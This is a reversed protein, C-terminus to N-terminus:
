FRVTASLYMGRIRVVARDGVPEIYSYRVYTNRYGYSLGFTPTASYTASADFDTWVGESDRKMGVGEITLGLAPTLYVRGKLGFLPMDLQLPEPSSSGEASEFSTTTRFRGYEGVIALIAYEGNVINFEAGGRTQEIEMISQLEEGPPTCLGAICIESTPSTTGDYKVQFYNGRIKLRSMLRVAFHYDWIREVPLGLDTVPDVTTGPVGITSLRLESVLDSRFRRVEFEVTSKEGMNAPAQAYALPSVLAVLALPVGVLTVVAVLGFRSRIM